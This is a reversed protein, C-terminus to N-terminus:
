VLIGDGPIENGSKLLVLDGVFIDGIQLDDLEKGDWIVSVKKGSEAEDNLKQFEEEKKLNNYATVSVVLAVAVLIALGEIWAISRHDEEAWTNIGISVIGAVFLIRLIMDDFADWM